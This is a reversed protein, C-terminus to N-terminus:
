EELLGIDAAPVVDAAIITDGMEIRDLIKTDGIVKGFVTNGWKDWAPQATLCIMFASPDSRKEPNFRDHMRLAAIAGRVHKRGIEAPITFDLENEAGLGRTFPIHIWKSRLRGRLASLQPRLGEFFGSSALAKFSTTHRPADKEFLDIVVREEGRATSFTFVIHEDAGPNPPSEAQVRAALEVLDPADLKRSVEVRRPATLTEGTIISRIELATDRAYGSDIVLNPATSLYQDLMPVLPDLDVGASKLVETTWLIKNWKV